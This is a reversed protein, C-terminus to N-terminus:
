TTNKLWKRAKFSHGAYFEKPIPGTRFETQQYYETDHGNPNKAKWNHYAEKSSMREKAQGVNGHLEHDMNKHLWEKPVRFKVTVRDEHPTHVASSGAKRFNAEGGSSSMAAYAHATHPDLTTSIKGTKPDTKNLGNKRISDLNRKHTGHYVDVHDHDGYWGINKSKEFQHEDDSEKAKEFLFEKFSKM